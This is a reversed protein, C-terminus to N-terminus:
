FCEQGLEKCTRRCKKNGTRPNIVCEKGWRECVMVCNENSEHQNAKLQQIASEPQRLREKEIEKDDALVLSCSLAWLIIPLILKSYSAQRM